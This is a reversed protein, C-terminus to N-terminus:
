RRIRILFIVLAAIALMFWTLAYGLHDNRFVREGDSPIPFQHLDPQKNIIDIVIPQLSTHGTFNEIAPFDVSFWFNKEPHNDPMLPNPAKPLHLMGVINTVNQPAPTPRDKAEKMEFPVWGRNVLFERGDRTTLPTLIEYGPKGNWLRGGLHVEHANDYTGSFIVKRFDNELLSDSTIEHLPVPALTQARDYKALLEEKWQLRELQWMGLGVLVGVVGAIFIWPLLRKIM